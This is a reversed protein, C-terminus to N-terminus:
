NILAQLARHCFPYFMLSSIYEGIVFLTWVGFSASIEFSVNRLDLERHPKMDQSQDARVRLNFRGTYIKQPSRYNLCITPSPSHKSPWCPARRVKLNFQRSGPFGQFCCSPTCPLFRGLTLFVREFGYCERYCPQTPRLQYGSSHCPTRYTVCTSRLLPYTALPPRVLQTSFFFSLLDFVPYKPM